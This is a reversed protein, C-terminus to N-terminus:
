PNLWAPADESKRGIKRRRWEKVRGAAIRKARNESKVRRIDVSSVNQVIRKMQKKTTGWKKALSRVNPTRDAAYERCIQAKQDETLSVLREMRGHKSNKRPVLIAPAVSAPVPASVVVPVRTRVQESVTNYKKMTREDRKTHHVTHCAHCLVVLDEPPEAFLNRYTNHHTELQRTSSCLQCKHGARAKAADSRVRWEDSAIYENYKVQHSSINDM